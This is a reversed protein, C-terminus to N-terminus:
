ANARSPADAVLPTASRTSQKRALSEREAETGVWPERTGMIWDFLPFTVCWNADQNPGMHHDVHWPLWERAWAPDLHAKRHLAYYAATNAWSGLVFGPAIPLLPTALLAGGILGIAEKAKSPSENLPRAYMPDVGGNKRVNKHHEHFHFSWYSKKNKGTGHLIYKHVLWETANSALVGLAFGIM